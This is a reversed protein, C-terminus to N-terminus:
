SGHRRLDAILERRCEVREDVLNPSVLGNQSGDEAAAQRVIRHPGFGVDVEHEDRYVILLDIFARQREVRFAHVDVRAGAAGALYAQASRRAEETREGPAAFVVWDVQTDPRERLLRLLTGGCGIEIDDSHAGLCLLKLPASGLGLKLM